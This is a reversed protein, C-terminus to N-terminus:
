EKAAPAPAKVPCVWGDLTLVARKLRTADVDRARLGRATERYAADADSELPELQPAPLPKGQAERLAQNEAQLRALQQELSEVADSLDTTQDEADSQSSEGPVQAARRSTAM